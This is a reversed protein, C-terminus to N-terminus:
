DHVFSLASLPFIEVEIGVVITDRLFPEPLRVADKQSTALSAGLARKRLSALDKESYIHHDPFGRFGVLDAGTARLTQGFSDNDGLGSFGFVRLGSLDTVPRYRMGAVPIGLEPLAPPFPDLKYNVVALDARALGSM